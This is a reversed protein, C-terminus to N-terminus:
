AATPELTGSVDATGTWAARVAKRWRDRRRTSEGERPFEIEARFDTYVRFLKIIPLEYGLEDILLKAALLQKERGLELIDRPHIGLVELHPRLEHLMRFQGVYQRMQWTWLEMAEAVTLGDLMKPLHLIGLAVHRAEDREYFLLLDSLVPEVQKERVAQFLTLAMPEIMMQMGMLKKALTDARLVSELVERTNPGLANPVEGLLALYDHMVYFHRAEDHAQSTAAMKAEMDSLHTALDTSIKWAALEGWLIVAFMARVAEREAAPLKVGGHREVLDPLVSRGDWALKQGKHYLRELKVAKAAESATRDPDFMDFDLKSGTPTNPIRVAGEARRARRGPLPPLLRIM